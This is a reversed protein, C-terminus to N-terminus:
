YKLHLYLLHTNLFYPLSHLSYIPINSSMLNCIVVSFVVRKESIKRKGQLSASVTKKHVLCFWFYCVLSYSWVALKCTVVITFIECINPWVQSSTLKFSIVQSSTSQLGVNQWHSMYKELMKKNRNRQEWIEGGGYMQRSYSFTGM